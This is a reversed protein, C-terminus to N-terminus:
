LMTISELHKDQMYLVRCRACPNLPSCSPPRRVFVERTTVPFNQSKPRRSRKWARLGCYGLTVITSFIVIAIAVIVLPQNLLWNTDSSRTTITGSRKASSSDSGMKSNLSASPASSSRQIPLSRQIPVLQLNGKYTQHRFLHTFSYSLPHVSTRNHLQKMRERSGWCAWARRGAVYTLCGTGLRFKVQM